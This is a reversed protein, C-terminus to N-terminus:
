EAPRAVLMPPVSYAVTTGTSMALQRIAHPVITGLMASQEATLHLEMFISDLVLAFKEGVQEAMRVMREDLGASIAVKSVRVLRDRELHWLAVWGNLHSQYETYTTGVKDGHSSGTVKSVGFIIDEADTIDAVKQGLWAVAGATRELEQQIADVPNIGVVPIGM